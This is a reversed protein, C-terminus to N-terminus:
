PEIKAEGRWLGRRAKRAKEEIAAYGTSQLRQARAWGTHVMNAGIDFGDAWCVAVRADASKDGRPRCVVDTAVVLDMLATRSIRGCPIVKGPWQCDKELPPAEIGFLRLRQGAVELTHGDIVRAPGNIEAARTAGAAAVALVGALIIRSIM